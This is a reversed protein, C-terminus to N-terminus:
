SDLKFIGPLKIQADSRIEDLLEQMQARFLGQIQPEEHARVFNTRWPPPQQAMEQLCGLYINGQTHGVAASAVQLWSALVIVNPSLLACLPVMAFHSKWPDASSMTSSNRAWWQAALLLDERTLHAFNEIRFKNAHDRFPVGVASMLEIGEPIGDNDDPM